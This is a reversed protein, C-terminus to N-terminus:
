GVNGTYKFLKRTNGLIIYQKNINSERYRLYDIVRGYMNERFYMEGHIYWAISNKGNLKIAEDLYFHAQEYNGLC